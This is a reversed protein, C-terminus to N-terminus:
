PQYEHRQKTKLKTKLNENYGGFFWNFWHTLSYTNFTKHAKPQKLQWFNM